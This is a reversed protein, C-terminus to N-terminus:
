PPDAAASRAPDRPRQVRCRYAAGGRFAVPALDVLPRCHRELWPRLEPPLRQFPRGFWLLDFPQSRPAKRTLQSPKEMSPLGVLVTDRVRYRNPGGSAFQWYQLRGSLAHTLIPVRWHPHVLLTRGAPPGARDLYVAWLGPQLDVAVQFWNFGVPIALLLVALGVALRHRLSAPRAAQPEVSAIWLLGLPLIPVFLRPSIRLQFALALPM